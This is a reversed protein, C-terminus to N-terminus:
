WSVGYDFAKSVYMFIAVTINESDFEDIVDRILKLLGHDTNKFAQFGYQNQSLQNISVFQSFLRACFYKEFVKSRQQAIM